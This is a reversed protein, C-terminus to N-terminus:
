QAQAGSGMSGLFLFWQLSFSMCQLLSSSGSVVVLSLRCGAVFVSGLRFFLSWSFEYLTYALVIDQTDIHDLVGCNEMIWDLGDCSLWVTNIISLWNKIELMHNWGMCFQLTSSIRWSKEHRALEERLEKWDKGEAIPVEPAPPAVVKCHACFLGGSSEKGKRRSQGRLRKM